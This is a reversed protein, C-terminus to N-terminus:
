SFHFLNTDNKHFLTGIYLAMLSATKVKRLVSGDFYTNIAAQWASFLVLFFLSDKTMKGCRSRAKM